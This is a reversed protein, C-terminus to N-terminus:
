HGMAAAGSRIVSVSNSLQKQRRHDMESVHSGEMGNTLPAYMQKLEKIHHRYNLVSREELEQLRKSNKAKVENRKQNMLESRM